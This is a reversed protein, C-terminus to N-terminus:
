YKLKPFLPNTKLNGIIPNIYPSSLFISCTFDQYPRQIKLEEKVDRAEQFKTKQNCSCLSCADMEM